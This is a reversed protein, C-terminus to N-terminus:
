ASEQHRSPVGSLLFAQIDVVTEGPVFETRICNRGANKSRYLAGDAARLLACADGRMSARYRALGISLTCGHRNGYEFRRRIRECAALCGYLEVGRFLVGFEDGGHRFAGGERGRLSEELIQGLSRLVEDGAEHGFLDNVQKFRDCDILALYVDEGDPRHRVVIQLNEEMYRRNFLGTLPDRYCLREYQQQRQGAQDLRQRLSQEQVDIHHAMWNMNRKLRTIEHEDDRELGVDFRVRYNGSRIGACFRNIAAVDGLLLFRSALRSVPVLLGLGLALSLVLVRPLDPILGNELLGLVVAVPLLLLISLVLAMRSTVSLGALLSLCTSFLPIGSRQAGDKGAVQVHSLSNNM